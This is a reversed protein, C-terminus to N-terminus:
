NWRDVTLILVLMLVGYLAAPVALIALVLSALGTRGKSRLVGGGGIVAAVAALLGIWLGMNFSSVSGDALGTIFLYVVVTAGAAALGMLVRYLLM